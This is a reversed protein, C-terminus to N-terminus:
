GRLPVLSARQQRAFISNRVATSSLGGPSRPGFCFMKNINTVNSPPETNAKHTGFHFWYM